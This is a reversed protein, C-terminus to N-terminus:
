KVDNSKSSEGGEGLEQFPPLQKCAHTDDYQM